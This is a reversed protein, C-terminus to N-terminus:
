SRSTVIDRRVRHAPSSGPKGVRERLPAAGGRGAVLDHAQTAVSEVPTRWTGPRDALGRSTTATAPGGRCRRGTGGTDPLAVPYRAARSCGARSGHLVATGGAGWGRSVRGGLRLRHTA